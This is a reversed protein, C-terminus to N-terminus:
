HREGGARATAFNETRREKHISFSAHYDRILTFHLSEYALTVMSPARLVLSNRRWFGSHSCVCVGSFDPNLKDIAAWVRRMLVGAVSLGTGVPVSSACIQRTKIPGVSHLVGLRGESKMLLKAQERAAPECDGVRFARHPPQAVHAVEAETRIEQWELASFIELRARSEVPDGPQINKIALQAQNQQIRNFANLNCQARRESVLDRMPMPRKAVRVSCIEPGPKAM